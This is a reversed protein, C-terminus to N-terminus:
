FSLDLLENIVEITYDSPYRADEKHRKGLGNKIRVTIFGLQKAPIIDNDVRDGVYVAHHSDISAKKLALEFIKADPKKIGVDSSSIILDFYRDIDLNKLRLDLNKSQNAIIGLHYDKKLLSLTPLVGDYLKENYHEWKPQPLGTNFSKWITYLPRTGNKAYQEEILARYEKPSITISAKKLENTCLEFYHDYSSTEDILTEGVDFFFWTKKKM